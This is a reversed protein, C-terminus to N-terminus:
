PCKGEILLDGGVRRVRLEEVLVAETLRRLSRGSIVNKAHQGGLLRPAVYFVARGVLGEQLASANLEGGGEIMLSTVSLRGLETLLARLPVRGSQAPLILVNTGLERLRAVRRKPAEETTAVVTGARFPPSLVRATLPIRAASDAIVRLPQRVRGPLRVTLQPDDKLVTGIGVMVADVQSRLRHAHRRAAEGTIWKSEGSATAIKGDLTMGTKLIVFPRGTRMWHCYAENLREASERLCGVTVDLGNRRLASIGRGSARPNPDRMAVVVRRLESEVILPVCPPTRKKIHSCPELSVYLTAGRARKGAQGLAVVEAHPGGAQAHYGEGVIRGNSVVVAGVMPNPSTFGRGKAALRLALTMYTADLDSAKV